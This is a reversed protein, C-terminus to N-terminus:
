STQIFMGADSNYIASIETAGNRFVLRTMQSTVKALMRPAQSQLSIYLNVDPTLEATNQYPVRAASLANGMITMGNITADQTLGITMFSNASGNQYQNLVSFSNSSGARSGPGSILGDSGLTYLANTAAGVPVTSTQTIDVSDGSKITSAYIGYQEQWLLTNEQMPKFSQWALVPQEDTVPKAIVVNMGTQQILDLQAPTFSLKLTYHTM